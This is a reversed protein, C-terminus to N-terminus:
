GGNNVRQKPYIYLYGNQISYSVSRNLRGRIAMVMAIAAKRVEKEDGWYCIKLSEDSAMDQFSKIVMEYKSRKRRKLIVPRKVVQIDGINIQSKM